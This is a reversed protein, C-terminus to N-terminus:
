SGGKSARVLQKMFASTIEFIFDIEAANVAADHKVYTNQYKSYYDLLKGFMNVLEPSGGGDRILKGVESMQNELSKQNELLRKLLLELALRLDDLANRQFVGAEQKTLAEKYQKLADPAEALWHPMEDIVSKNIAHLPRDALHAFRTFLKIRLEQLPRRDAGDPLKQECRKLLARLIAFRDRGNFAMVNEYLATRKNSAQFPYTGHPIPVDKDFALAKSVAVIQGGSLGTTTDGLMDAAASVFEAPVEQEPQM